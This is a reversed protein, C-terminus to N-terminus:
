SRLRGTVVFGDELPTLEVNTLCPAVDLPFSIGALASRGEGLFVAGYYIVVEQVTGKALFSAAVRGGGEVLLATFGESGLRHVVASVDPWGDAGAVVWDAREDMGISRAPRDSRFLQLEGPLNSRGLLVFRQPPAGPEGHLSLQPDDTRATGAGVLIADHQARLAHAHKRCAESTIWQSHGSADAIRGDLSTALKLTVWPLGTRKFHLYRRNLHRAAEEEVGTIVEIGAHRLAELGRGSVRPDPDLHTTVVCRIGAGIIAETCPGTRGTHCCPELTVVLTGGRARSGAKELAIIEAHPGGAYEHFGAGVERGEPDLVIAGVVPNPHTFGCGRSALSLAAKMPLSYDIAASDLTTTVTGTWKRLLVAVYWPGDRSPLAGEGM